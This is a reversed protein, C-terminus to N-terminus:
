QVEQFDIEEVLNLFNEKKINEFLSGRRRRADRHNLYQFM